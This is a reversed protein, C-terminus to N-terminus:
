AQLINKGVENKLWRLNKYHIPLQTSDSTFHCIVSRNGHTKYM